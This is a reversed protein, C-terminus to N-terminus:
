YRYISKTCMNVRCLVIQTQTIVNQLVVFPLSLPVWEAWHNGATVFTVVRRIESVCRETYILMNNSALMQKTHM